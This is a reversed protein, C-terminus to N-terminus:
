TLYPCKADNNQDEFYSFIPHLSSYPVQLPVRAILLMVRPQIIVKPYKEKRTDKVGRLTNIAFYTKSFKVGELKNTRNTFRQINWAAKPKRKEVSPYFLMWISIFKQKTPLRNAPRGMLFTLTISASQYLHHMDTYM